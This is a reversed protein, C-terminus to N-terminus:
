NEGYSLGPVFRLNVGEGLGNWPLVGDTDAINFFKLMSKYFRNQENKDTFTYECVYDNLKRRTLTKYEKRLEKISGKFQTKVFATATERDCFFIRTDSIAGKCKSIYKCIYRVAGAADRIFRSKAKTRFANPSYSCFDSISSCWATNIRAFRTYPIDFICHYHYNTNIGDGERVALYRRLGYNRRLNEIFRSFAENREKEIPKYKYNGFTLVCFLLRNEGNQKMYAVRDAIDRYVKPTIAYKKEKSGTETAKCIGICYNKYIKDKYLTCDKYKIEAPYTGNNKQTSIEYDRYARCSVCKIGFKCKEDTKYNAQKAAYSLRTDPHSVISGKYHLTMTNSTRGAYNVGRTDIATDSNNFTVALSPACGYGIM